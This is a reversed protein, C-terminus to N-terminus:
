KPRLEKGCSTKVCGGFVGASLRTRSRVCRAWIVFDVVFLQWGLWGFYSFPLLVGLLHNRRM